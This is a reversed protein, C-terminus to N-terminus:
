VASTDASAAPFPVDAICLEPAVFPRMDATDAVTGQGLRALAGRLLGLHVSCVVQPFARAVDRFPCADLELQRGHGAVDVIRPAFGLRDFLEAVRHIGGDWALHEAHPVQEDAWRRGAAEARRPGDEADVAVLGALVEALQRHGEKAEAAPIATYLKRPRGPGGAAPAAPRVLAARELVRLHFRVTTVHLGVAAALQHVDLPGAAARLVELLRRRSPVALAVHRQESTPGAAPDIEPVSRGDVPM